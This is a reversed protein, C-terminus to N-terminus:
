RGDTTPPVYCDFFYWWWGYPELHRCIEPYQVPIDDDGQASAIVGFVIALVVALLFAKLLRLPTNIPTM